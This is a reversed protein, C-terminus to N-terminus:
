TASAREPLPGVSAPPATAVVEGSEATGSSAAVAAVATGVAVLGPVAWLVPDALTWGAGLANREALRVLVTVVGTAQAVFFACWALAVIRYPTSGVSHTARADLAWGCVLFFGVLLPLGYRGQWVVGAADYTAATIAVPVALTFFVTGAMALRARGTARRFALVTLVWWVSFALLYLPAPALEDRAPFAAVSQVAWMLVQAPYESLSLNGFHETVPGIRNTGAWLTYAGSGVACAAVVAACARAAGSRVVEAVRQRDFLPAVCLLILALWLPGLSRVLLLPVAGVTFALLYPRFSRATTRANALGLAASWVLLGGAMEVGNPAAVSTSYLLVPSCAVTLSVVPWPSTAWRRTTVFAGAILLACMVAGAARMAYLATSGSFPRAVTGVVYYFVPNYASASSPVAVTAGDADGEPDCTTFPLSECVPRAADAIDRPVEVLGGWGGASPPAHPSWQGRSVAAAKYAHEHEDLGRFAPVSLMWASQMVLVGAFVLLFVRLSTTGSGRSAMDSM